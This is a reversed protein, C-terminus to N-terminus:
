QPAQGGSRHIRSINKINMAILVILAIQGLDPSISSGSPGEIRILLPMISISVGQSIRSAIDLYNIPIMMAIAIQIVYYAIRASAILYVILFILLVMFDSFAMLQYPRIYVTINNHSFLTPIAILLLFMSVMYILFSIIIRAYSNM